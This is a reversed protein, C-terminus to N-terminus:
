EPLRREYEKQLRLFHAWFRQPAQGTARAVLLDLHNHWGPGVKLLVDRSPPKARAYEPNGRM